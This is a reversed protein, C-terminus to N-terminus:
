RDQGASPRLPQRKQAVVQPPAVGVFANLANPLHALHGDDAIAVNIPLIAHRGFGARPYEPQRPADRNAWQQQAVAIGSQCWCKTRALDAAIKDSCECFHLSMLRVDPREAMAM